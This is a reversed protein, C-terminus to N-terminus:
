DATDNGKKVSKVSKISVKASDSAFNATENREIEKDESFIHKDNGESFIFENLTVVTTHGM